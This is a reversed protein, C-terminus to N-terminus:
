HDICSYIGAIIARSVSGSCGCVGSTIQVGDMGCKATNWCYLEEQQVVVM